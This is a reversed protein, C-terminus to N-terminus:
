GRALARGEALFHDLADGPLARLPRAAGFPANWFEGTRATWPGVYAYPERISDDGPSIGYNVEDLSIGVDFHEPWLVPTVGHALRRLAADGRRLAALLAAASDADVQLPEDLAVDTYDKYVDAPAGPEIGAATGLAACTAGDLPLSAEDTVLATATLTLGPLAVTAIGDATVRLRITGSARYQPGAMVIEAIGHLSRRAAEASM